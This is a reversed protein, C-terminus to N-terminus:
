GKIPSGLHQPSGPTAPREAITSAIREFRPQTDRIQAVIRDALCEISTNNEITHDWLNVNKDYFAMTQEMWERSSENFKERSPERQKLRSYSEFVM